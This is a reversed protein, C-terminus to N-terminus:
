SVRSAAYHIWNGKKNATYAKFSLQCSIPQIKVGGINHTVCYEVRASRPTLTKAPLELSVSFSPPYLHVGAYKKSNTTSHHSAFTGFLM